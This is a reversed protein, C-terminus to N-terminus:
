YTDTIAVAVKHKMHASAKCVAGSTTDKDSYVNLAGSCDVIDIDGDDLAYNM